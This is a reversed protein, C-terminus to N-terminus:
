DKFGNVRSLAPILLQQGSKIMQPNNGIVARNAEYIVPWKKTDGYFKKAIGSLCDGSTTMHYRLKVQELGKGGQRMFIKHVEFAQAVTEHEAINMGAVAYVELAFVPASSISGVRKAFVNEMVAAEKLSWSGHLRYKKALDELSRFQEGVKGASGGRDLIHLRGFNDRFAYVAHGVQRLAGRELRKGFINFMTVSDNRQTM